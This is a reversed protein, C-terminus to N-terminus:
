SPVERPLVPFPLGPKRSQLLGGLAVVVVVVCLLSCLFLFLRFPLFCFSFRFGPLHFLLFSAEFPLLHEFYIHYSNPCREPCHPIQALLGM